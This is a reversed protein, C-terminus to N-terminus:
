GGIRKRRIMHVVIGGIAISFAGVLFIWFLRASSELSETAPPYEIVEEAQKPKSPPLAAIDAKYRALRKRILEAHPAGYELAREYYSDAAADGGDLPSLGAAIALDGASAYLDGVFADPPKVFETREQLQYLIQRLLESGGKLKGKEFPLIEPAVPVEGTGFGYGMVANKEFWDPDRALAIKAALIRAHLWESEQHESADRSMGERIWKLAEENEGKLELATGLNAAVLASGPFKKETERFLAIAADIKGTLLRAVGLDNSNKLTPQVAHAKELRQVIAEAAAADGQELSVQLDTEFTNVCSWAPAAVLFLAACLHVLWRNPGSV